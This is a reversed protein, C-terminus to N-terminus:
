NRKRKVYDIGRETLDITQMVAEVVDPHLVTRVKEKDFKSQIYVTRIFNLVAVDFDNNVDIM